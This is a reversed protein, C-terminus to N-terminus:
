ESLSKQRSKKLDRWNVILVNDRDNGIVCSNTGLSKVKYPGVWPLDLKESDHDKKWVLDGIKYPSIREMIESQYKQYNRSLFSNIEKIKSARNRVFDDTEPLHLDDNDLNLLVDIPINPNRGFVIQFPSLQRWSNKSINYGFVAQVLSLDWDEKKDQVLKKVMNMITGNAREIAGQSEPHFSSSSKFSIGWIEYMKLSLKSIFEGGQDSRLRKPPGFRLIWEHIFTSLVEESSKSFLPIAELWASRHDIMTCIHKFGQASVPKIDVILDIYVEDFVDHALRPLNPVVNSKSPYQNV